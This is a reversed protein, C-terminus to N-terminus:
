GEGEKIKQKCYDTALMSTPYNWGSCPNINEQESKSSLLGESVEKGKEEIFNFNLFSEQLELLFYQLSAGHYAAFM